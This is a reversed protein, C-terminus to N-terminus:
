NPSGQEGGMMLIERAPGEGITKLMMLIERAPGEGITKLTQM